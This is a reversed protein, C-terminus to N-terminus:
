LCELNTDASEYRLGCGHHDAAHARAQSSAATDFVPPQAVGSRSKKNQEKIIM